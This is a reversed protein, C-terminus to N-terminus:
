RADWYVQINKADSMIAPRGASNLYTYATRMADWEEVTLGESALGAQVQALTWGQALRYNNFRTFLTYAEHVDQTNWARRLYAVAVAKINSEGKAAIEQTIEVAAEADQQAMRSQAESYVAAVKDNWEDLSNARLPVMATRGDTFTVDVVGRYEGTIEITPDGARVDVSAIPM